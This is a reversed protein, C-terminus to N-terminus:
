HQHAKGSEDSLELDGLIDVIKKGLRKLGDRRRNDDIEVPDYHNIASIYGTAVYPESGDAPFFLTSITTLALKRNGIFLEDQGRLLSGLLHRGRIRRGKYYEDFDRPDWPDGKKRDAPLDKRTRDAPLDKRTSDAPLDSRDPGALAQTGALTATAATVAGAASYRLVDRRKMDTM